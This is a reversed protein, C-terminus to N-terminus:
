SQNVPFICIFVCSSGPGAAGRRRVMKERSDAQLPPEEGAGSGSSSTRVELSLLLASSGEVLKKLEAVAAHVLSEMVAALQTYLAASSSM